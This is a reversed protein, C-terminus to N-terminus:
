LSKLAEVLPRRPRTAWWRVWYLGIFLVLPLPFFMIPHQLPQDGPQVTALFLYWLGVTMIVMFFVSIIQANKGWRSESNVM